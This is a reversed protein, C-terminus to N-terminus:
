LSLAPQCVHVTYGLKKIDQIADMTLTKTGALRAFIKASECAPYITQNGYVNKITVKIEKMGLVIGSKEHLDVGKAYFITCLM